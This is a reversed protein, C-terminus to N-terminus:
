VPGRSDDRPLSHPDRGNRPVFREANAPAVFALDRGEYVENVAIPPCGLRHELGTVMDEGGPDLTSAEILLVRAHDVVSSSKVIMSEAGQVDLKVVNPQGYRHALEDLTTTRVPLPEIDGFAEAAARLLSSSQTASPVRWLTTGRTHDTVAAEVVTVDLGVTNSRLFTVVEPDPEVAVVRAGRRAALAAFLGAHAGIDFVLDGLEVYEALRRIKSVSVRVHYAASGDFPLRVSLGPVPVPRHLALATLIRLAGPGYERFLQAVKRVTTVVVM